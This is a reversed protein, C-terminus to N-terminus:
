SRAKKSLNLKTIQYVMSTCKHKQLFKEELTKGKPFIKIRSSNNKLVLKIFFSGLTVMNSFWKYGSLKTGFMILDWIINKYVMMKSGM